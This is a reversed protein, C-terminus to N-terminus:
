QSSSPFRLWQFTTTPSIGKQNNLNALGVGKQYLFSGKEWILIAGGPKDPRFNDQM